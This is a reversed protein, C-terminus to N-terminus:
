FLSDVKCPSRVMGAIFLLVTYLIDEDKALM